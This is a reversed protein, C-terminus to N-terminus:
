AAKQNALEEAKLDKRLIKGVPTMPLSDRFEIKKPVKYGTLYKRCYKVLEQKDLNDDKCVVFLKVAEGTKEDPVGIVACHEVSSHHAVVDEIENPYVNFGSVLVMDKLRDVISVFGDEAIIAVDGTRLWGDRDLISDTAERNEWYGKMVQPGRVCLEGREGIGVEYGDDDITKLETGPLPMGVSGERAYQGLPNACVGPSCETLGYAESIRSGTVEYWRAAVDSQLATGGSLTTKLGSFDCERFSPHSMLSNFLTNIGIFISFKWPKIMKVFMATDRPNAILISHNGLNVMAMLHVTFSYIHYLPLPAIMIEQGSSHISRGQEDKQKLMAQAQQMNAIINRHTLMAGKAVGTTGGTYQLIAVDNRDPSVPRKYSASIGQSLVKRFSIAQPLSYSKVAKKVYKVVTNIAMRRHWPLMDAISSMILTEIHTKDIIEQVMHGFVDLCILAKAGSDNFQHLMERGTYLPNTNVIVLGAKIAGYVVVPYQLLNPMQIAIRDGPKLHTYNQLWAAFETSYKDLKKYTLTHGIGTFAPKDGYQLVAEEFVDLLCQYKDPEISDPVGSARKGNWFITDM